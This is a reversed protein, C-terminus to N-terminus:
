RKGCEVRHYPFEVRRLRGDVTGEVWALLAEGNRQYGIKQPFDHKPNEFLVSNRGVSTSLFTATPQGAPHAEYALRGREVRIVIVEYALLKGESSTQSMGLMSGQRPSMWSEQVTRDPATFEWCGQLWAVRDLRGSPQGHVLSAGDVALLIAVALARRM